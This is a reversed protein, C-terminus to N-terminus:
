DKKDVEAARQAAKEEIEVVTRELKGMYSTIAYGYCHLEHEYWPWPTKWMDRGTAKADAEYSKKFTQQLTRVWANILHATRSVEALSPKEAEVQVRLKEADERALRLQRANGIAGNLTALLAVRVPGEPLALAHELCATWQAKQRETGDVKEPNAQFEKLHFYTRVENPNRVEPTTPESSTTM